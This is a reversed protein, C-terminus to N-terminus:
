EMDRIGHIIADNLEKILASYGIDTGISFHVRKDLITGGSRLWPNQLQHDVARM